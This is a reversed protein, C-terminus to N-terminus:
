IKNKRKKRFKKIWLKIQNDKIGQSILCDGYKPHRIKKINIVANNNGVLNNIVEGNKIDVLKIM